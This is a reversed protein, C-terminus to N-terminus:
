ESIINIEIPKTMFEFKMTNNSTIYNSQINSSIRQVNNEKVAELM